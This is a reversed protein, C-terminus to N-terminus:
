ELTAKVYRAGMERLCRRITEESVAIDRKQFHLRLETCTWISSNIGHKGPDNENLVRKMEKKEDEGLSPPRGSRELDAVCELIYATFVATATKPLIREMATYRFISFAVLSASTLFSASLDM